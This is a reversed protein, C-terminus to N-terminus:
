KCFKAYEDAEEKGGLEKASKLDQCAAEQENMIYYVRGRVSYVGAFKPYEQIGQTAYSLATKYDKEHEYILTLGIFAKDRLGNDPISLSKLFDEKSNAYQKLSLEADGRLVYPIAEEPVLEIAKSLNDIASQLNRNKLEIAGIALYAMGDNPRRKIVAEADSRAEKDRGFRAATQMRISYFSTLFDQDSPPTLKIGTNADKDAGIYDNLELKADARFYYLKYNEKENKFNPQTEAINAIDVAEQNKGLKYYAQTLAVQTFFDNPKLQLYLNGYKVLEEYRHSRLTINVALAYYANMNTPKLAIGKEIEDFALSDKKLAYYAESRYRYFFPINNKLIIAKDYNLFALKYQGQEKQILGM